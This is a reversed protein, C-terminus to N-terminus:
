SAINKAMLTDATNDFESATNIRIGDLNAVTDADCPYSIDATSARAAALRTALSSAEFL